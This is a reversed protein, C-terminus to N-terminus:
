FDVRVHSGRLITVASNAVESRFRFALNGANPGNEVQGIMRALLPTVGLSATSLLETEYASVVSQVLTGAATPILISAKVSAPAAPGNLALALGTTAAAATFFLIAEFNLIENAEIPM